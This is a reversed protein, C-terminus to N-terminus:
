YSETTCYSETVTSGEICDFRMIGCIEPSASNLPVVTGRYQSKYILPPISPSATFLTATNPPVVVTSIITREVKCLDNFYFHLLVTGAGDFGMSLSSSCFVVRM